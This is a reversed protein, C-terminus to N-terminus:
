EYRIVSCTIIVRSMSSRDIYSRHDHVIDEVDLQEVESFPLYVVSVNEKGIGSIDVTEPIESGTLSNSLVM